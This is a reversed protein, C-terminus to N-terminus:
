APASACTPKWRVSTNFLIVDQFVFSVKEFLSDTSIDQIPHGDILIRGQDHDYLRSILKLLTSKGCGSPGVIATVQDQQAVFSVDDVVKVDELYSFSVHDLAIDFRNLEVAKGTQIPTSRLDNLRRVRADLYFLEAFSEELGGMADVLRVSALLYGIVYILQVANAKLLVSAVLAVM